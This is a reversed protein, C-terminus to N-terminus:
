GYRRAIDSQFSLRQEAYILTTDPKAHGLVAAAADLGQQERLVTATTHRIQNPTWVPIGLRECARRIAAAYSNTSYAASPHGRGGPGAKARRKARARQSPTLPTQRAARLRASRDVAAQRPSFVAESLPRDRYRMLVAQARPGLTIVRAQGRHANKHKAPRYVWIEGTTEIEVWRMSCVEGPRMGTLRQVRVMDAPISEMEAATQAIVEDDIARVPMTERAEFEGRKIPEVVSLRTVVDAPVFDQALGWKFLRKIVATLKKNVYQRSFGEEVLARRQIARLAAPGFGAVSVSGYLLRLRRLAPKDVKEFTVPSLNSARRHDAYRLILEAISISGPAVRAVSRSDRVGGALHEAIVRNYAEKSEASGYLGLYIDRGDIRVRARGSPKHLSYKPIIPTSRPM